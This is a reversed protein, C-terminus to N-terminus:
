KPVGAVDTLDVEEEYDNESDLDQESESAEEALSGEDLEEEGEEGGGNAAPAPDPYLAHFEHPVWAKFKALDAVKEPSLPLAADHLDYAADSVLGADAAGPQRTLAIKKWPEAADLSLRYWVEDSHAVLAGGETEEAVGYNFWRVKLFPVKEGATNKWVSPRVYKASLYKKWDRFKTRDLWATHYPAPQKVKAALRMWSKSSGIVKIKKSARSLAGFARDNEMFTHGPPSYKNDLRHYYALGDDHVADNCFLMMFQNKLQSSTNDAWWALQTAGTRRKMFFENSDSLVENAGKNSVTEDWFLLSHRNAQGSFLGYAYTKLKRLYFAKNTPVKPTQLV